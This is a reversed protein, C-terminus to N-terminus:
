FSARFWVALESLIERNKIGMRSLCATLLAISEIEEFTRELGGYKNSLILDIKL